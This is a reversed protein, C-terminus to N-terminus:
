SSKYAISHYTKAHPGLFVRAYIRILAIGNIVFSLAVLFVLVYQQEHIHSFILDQGIFSLTIPFGYAGLCALFFLQAAKAHEYSHGHFRNIDITEERGLKKLIVVGVIACVTIGSLYIHVDLFSFNENFAVALAIWFHNMIVLLWSLLANKRETYARLTLLIALFAFVFPLKSKIFIPVLNQHYVLFLAAGYIIVFFLISNQLTLFNLKRGIKRLPNWLLKAVLLELNWEKLSIM